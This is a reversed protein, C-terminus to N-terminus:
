ARLVQVIQKGPGRGEALAQQADSAERLGPVVTVDVPLPHGVLHALARQLGAQVRSPATASLSALSFGGVSANAAFLSGAAPLPTFGAGSANGFLIIRGLPAVLRLDLDLLTTGQPDLVLDVPGAGSRALTRELHEDRVLVESYGAQRAQEVRSAAGVTGVIARAGKARALVAVAHSVGGAASHVLVVQGPQLRGADTLLLEATLLTGPAAAADLLEVEPPVRVAHFASAVAVEALGGSGTYAAVRDGVTLDEVGSGTERVTGSVELGPVFPWRDAYGADGRRAMVDKFNIGAFHVDIAVEGRDPRPVPVRSVETQSADPAPSTFSLANMTTTAM